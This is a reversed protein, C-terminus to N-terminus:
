LYAPLCLRAVGLLPDDHGRRGVAQSVVVVDALLLHLPDIRIGARGSPSRRDSQRPRIAQDHDLPQYDPLPGDWHRRLSVGSLGLATSYTRSGMGFGFLFTTTDRQIQELAYTVALGRGFNYQGDVEGKGDNFLYTEISEATLYEQLPKLGRTNAIFSNYIPVFIAASLSFLVVYVFLQRFKGGRILHLVLAAAGMAVVAVIYFKTVNLMSGALGLVLILLLTKWKGTAIWHGLGLCVAFFVFMTYQGVGKWGFTGALSDGPPEGMAYQVLQVGIELFMLILLFKFLLRPFDEPWRPILYAFVM